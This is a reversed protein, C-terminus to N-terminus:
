LVAGVVKYLIDYFAEKVKNLGSKSFYHYILYLLPLILFDVLLIVRLINLM